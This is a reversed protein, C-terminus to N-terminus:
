KPLKVIANLSRRVFPEPNTTNRNGLPHIYALWEVHYCWMDVFVFDAAEVDTTFRSSNRISDAIWHEYAYQYDIPQLTEVGDIGFRHRSFPWVRKFKLECQRANILNNMAMDEAVDLVAIKCQTDSGEGGAGGEVAASLSQAVALAATPRTDRKRPVPAARTGDAAIVDSWWGTADSGKNDLDQSELGDSMVDLFAVRAADVVLEKVGGDSFVQSVTATAKRSSAPLNTGPNGAQNAADQAGPSPLSDSPKAVVSGGGSSLEGLQPQLPQAGPLTHQNHLIRDAIELAERQRAESNEINNRHTRKGLEGPAEFDAVVAKGSKSSYM